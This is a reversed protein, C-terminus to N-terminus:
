LAEFIGRGPVEASGSVETPLYVSPETKHPPNITFKKDTLRFKGISNSKM